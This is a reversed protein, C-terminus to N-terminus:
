KPTDDYKGYRSYIAHAIRRLRHFLAHPDNYTKESIAHSMRVGNWYTVVLYVFEDPKNVVPHRRRDTIFCCGDVTHAYWESTMM